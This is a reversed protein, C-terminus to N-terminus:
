LPLWQAELERCTLWIAYDLFRDMPQELVSLAIEAARPDAIRGLVRVTELRVQPHADAAQRSLLELSRPVRDHWATLVRTAAARVRHDEALLLDGLLEPQVDRLAQYM